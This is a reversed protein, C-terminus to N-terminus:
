SYVHGREFKSEDYLIESEERLQIDVRSMWKGSGSVM